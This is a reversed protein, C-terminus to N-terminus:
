VLSIHRASRRRRGVASREARSVGERALVQSWGARIEIPPVIILKLTGPKERGGQAELRKVDVQTQTEMILKWVRLNQIEEGEKNEKKRGGEGGGEAETGRRM